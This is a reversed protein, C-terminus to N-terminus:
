AARRSANNADRLVAAAFLLGGGMAVPWVESISLPTEPPLGAALEPHRALLAFAAASLAGLVFAAPVTAFKSTSSLAAPPARAGRLRRVLEAAAFALVVLSWPPTHM